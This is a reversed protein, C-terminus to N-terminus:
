VSISPWTARMPLQSIHLFKQDSFRLAPSRKPSRPTSPFNINFLAKFFYTRYPESSSADQGCYSIMNWYLVYSWFNFYKTFYAFSSTTTHPYPKNFRELIFSEQSNQRRWFCRVRHPLSRRSFSITALSNIVMNVFAVFQSQVSCTSDTKLTIEGLNVNINFEKWRSQIGCPRTKSASRNFNQTYKKNGGYTSCTGGMENEQFENGQCHQTIFILKFIRM